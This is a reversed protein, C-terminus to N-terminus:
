IANLTRDAEADFLLIFPLSLNNLRKCLPLAVRELFIAKCVTFPKVGIHVSDAAIFGGVINVRDIYVLPVPLLDDDLTFAIEICELLDNTGYVLCQALGLGVHGDLIIKDLFDKWLINEKDGCLLKLVEIRVFSRLLTFVDDCLFLASDAQHLDAILKSGTLRM